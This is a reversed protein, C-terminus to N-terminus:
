ASRGKSPRSQRPGGPELENTRTLPEPEVPEQEAEHPSTGGRGGSSTPYKVAHLVGRGGSSTGGTLRYRNPLNNGTSDAIQNVVLFGAAELERIARRAVNGCVGALESIRAISPWALGKDDAHRAIACYVALAHPGLKADIVDWPITAFHSRRGKGRSATPELSPMFAEKRDAANGQEPARGIENTDGILTVIRLGETLQSRM